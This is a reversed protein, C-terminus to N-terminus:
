KQRSQFFGIRTKQLKKQPMSRSISSANFRNAVDDAFLFARLISRSISPANFRNAVDDAFEKRWQKELTIYPREQLRVSAGGALLSPKKSQISSV